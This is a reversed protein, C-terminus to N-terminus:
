ELSIPQMRSAIECCIRKEVDAAVLNAAECRIDNYIVLDKKSPVM